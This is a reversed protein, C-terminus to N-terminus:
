CFTKNNFLCSRGSRLESGKGCSWCHVSSRFIRKEAISRTTRATTLIGEDFDQM